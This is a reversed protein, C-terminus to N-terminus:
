MVSRTRQLSALSGDGTALSLAGINCPILKDFKYNGTGSALQQQIKGALSVIEGRVAYESSLVSQPLEGVHLARTFKSRGVLHKGLASM